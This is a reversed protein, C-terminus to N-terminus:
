IVHISESLGFSSSGLGGALAINKEGGIQHIPSFIQYCEFNIIIYVQFRFTVKRILGIDM